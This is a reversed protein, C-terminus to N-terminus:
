ELLDAYAKRDSAYCGCAAAELGIRDLVTLDGRTYEILGSKQLVGAAATIGVRRVGLMYALFEHTMRFNDSHARDHSMLLWRALRPGIQHFRLCTASTTLHNMLVCVYRDLVRQLAESAAVERQFAQSSIRWSSGSGQVVARLPATMVGLGVHAGVMGERGVMGVELYPSGDTTAVLSIFGDVPFYVYPAAEGPMCLVDALVLQVEECSSLFRARDSRPLLKILHNQVTAM